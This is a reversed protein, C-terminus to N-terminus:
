KEEGCLKKVIREMRLARSGKVLIVAKEEPIEAKELFEEPTSFVEYPKQSPEFGKAYYDAMEGIFYAKEVISCALKGIEQHFEPALDGLEKMEGLIAIKKGLSESQDRLWLLSAEMSGPNANYTDDLIYLNGAQLLKARELWSLEEPLKEIIEDMKLGTALGIGFACLLNRLNHKGLLNTEFTYSKDVYALTVKFGKDLPTVSLLQIDAGKGEGFSLKKHPFNQARARLNEQDYFYIIWGAPDTKRWLSTKEELIGELSHLGELHAPQVCTIASIQPQTIEALREIEGKLSTGLELIVYNFDEKLSLLSLPVGILNNYNAENKATKFFRSLLAYTFEKTTTKGCSGTIAIVNYKKRIRQWKALDGLAQLTDKVLILSITKPLEELKLGQPFYDLVLGKAGRKLAESWFTHGDFNKGRLAWFLYGPELLRTDTCLGKFTIGMDGNVLIGSTAKVIDETQFRNEILM